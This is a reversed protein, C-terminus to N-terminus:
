PASHRTRASDSPPSPDNSISVFSNSPRMSFVTALLASSFGTGYGCIFESVPRLYWHVRKGDYTLICNSESNQASDVVAVLDYDSREDTIDLIRSGAVYLLIVKNDELIQKFYQTNRFDSIFESLM